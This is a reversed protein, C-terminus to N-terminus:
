LASPTLIGTIRFLLNMPWPLTVKNRVLYTYLSLKEEYPGFGLLSDMLTCCGKCFEILGHFESVDGNDFVFSVYVTFYHNIINKCKIIFVNDKLFDKMILSQWFLAIM